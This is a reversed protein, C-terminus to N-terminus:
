KGSKIFHEIGLAIGFTLSMEQLFRKTHLKTGLQMDDRRTHNIPQSVNILSSKRLNAILLYDIRLPITSIFMYTRSIKIM